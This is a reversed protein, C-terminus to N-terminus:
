LEEDGLILERVIEMVETHDKATGTHLDPGKAVVDWQTRLPTGRHRLVLYEWFGEYRRGLTGGGVKAVRILFEEGRKEAEGQWYTADFDEQRM